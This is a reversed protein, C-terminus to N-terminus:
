GCEAGTLTLHTQYYISVISGPLTQASLSCGRLIASNKELALYIFKVFYKQQPNCVELQVASLQSSLQGLKQKLDVEHQFYLDPYVIPVKM